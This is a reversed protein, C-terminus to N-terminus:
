NKPLYTLHKQNYRYIFSLALYKRKRRKLNSFEELLTQDDSILLAVHEASNEYMTGNRFDLLYQELETVTQSQFGSLDSFSNYQNNIDPGYYYRESEIKTMFTAITGNNIIRFFDKRFFIYLIGNNSYGWIQSRKITHKQGDYFYSLEEQELTKQIFDSEKFNAKSIINRSPIPKNNKVQSFNLFIGDNFRFDNNYVLSDSASQAISQNFGFVCVLIILYFWRYSLFM